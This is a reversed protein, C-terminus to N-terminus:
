LILALAVTGGVSCFLVLGVLMVMGVVLMGEGTM